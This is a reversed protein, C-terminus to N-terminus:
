CSSIIFRGRNIPIGFRESAIREIIKGVAGANGFHYDIGERAFRPHQAGINKLIAALGQVRGDIVALDFSGKHLTHPPQCRLLENPIILSSKQSM